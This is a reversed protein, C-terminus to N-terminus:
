LEDFNERNDIRTKWEGAVTGDVDLLVQQGQFWSARKFPAKYGRDMMELYATRNGEKVLSLHFHPSMRDSFSCVFELIDAFLAKTYKNYYWKRKRYTLEKIAQHAEDFRRQLWPLSLWSAFLSVGTAEGSFPDMTDVNTFGVLIYRTGKTTELGEHEIIAGNLIVQGKRPQITIAANRDRRNHFRTGGGEFEDNLLINFSIHGSDTHKKLLRQGRDGDYRVIFMQLCFYCDANREIM